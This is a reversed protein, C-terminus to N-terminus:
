MASKGKSYKRMMLSTFYNPSIRAMVKICNIWSFHNQESNLM